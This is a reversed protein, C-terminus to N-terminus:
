RHIRFIKQNKCSCFGKEEGRLLQGFRRPCVAMPNAVAKTGHVPVPVPAARSLPAPDASTVRCGGRVGSKKATCGTRGSRVCCIRCRPSQMKVSRDGAQVGTQMTWSVSRDRQRAWYRCPVDRRSRHHCRTCYTVPKAYATRTELLWCCGNSRLIPPGHGDTTHGLGRAAWCNM